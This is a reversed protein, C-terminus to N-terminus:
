GIVALVAWLAVPAVAVIFAGYRLLQKFFADRDVDRANALVIAGNTSFPSVDVVTAAVALAAVMSVPDIHGVTLLPVALPITAGLVGVSSALASVIAGIFLLLLVALTPSGVDRVANGVYTVAGMQQLVSVYTLVGCILLVTPWTIQNVAQANTKPSAVGLVVAITIAVLGVNLDFVLTLVVLTTLGLLTLVQHFTIRERPGADETEKDARGLKLGGFVVFVIAAIVANAVLSALFLAIENQPLHNREVVGNVIAGYVSIPSFGGAQAGHVVLAGMLLQNIGYRNALNLAIPAIIAVAAPSVAGIATLLGTVGFMVWPIVAIRGGVVRVALDVLRDVTGNARAIAFLYTVGVLVVFIDGPFGDLVKEATLGGVTTGVLFAAAFGLGGMNVSLTTALAFVLALVLISILEPSM